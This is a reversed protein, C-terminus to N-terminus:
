DADGSRDTKKSTEHRNSAKCLDEVKINHRFTRLPIRDSPPPQEIRGAKANVNNRTPIGTDSFFSFTILVALLAGGAIAYFM